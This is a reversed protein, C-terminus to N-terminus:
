LDYRAAQSPTSRLFVGVHVVMNAEVFVVVYAKEPWM